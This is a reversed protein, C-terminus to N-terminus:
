STPSGEPAQRTEEENSSGALMAVLDDLLELVHVHPCYDNMEDVSEHTITPPLFGDLYAERPTEPPAVLRLLGLELARADLIKLFFPPCIGWPNSAVALAGTISWASADPHNPSCPRGTSTRARAGQAWLEIDDLLMRAIRVIEVPERHMCRMDVATPIDM